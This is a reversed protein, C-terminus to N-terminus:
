APVQLVSILLIIVLKNRQNTNFDKYSIPIIGRKKRGGKRVREGKESEKGRKRENAREM